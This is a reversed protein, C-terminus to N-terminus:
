REFCRKDVTFDTQIAAIFFAEHGRGSGTLVCYVDGKFNRTSVFIVDVDSFM